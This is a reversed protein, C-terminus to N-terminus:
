KIEITKGQLVDQELVKVKVIKDKIKIVYEGALVDSEEQKGTSYPVMIEFVGNDATTENEYIFKRDQNTTIELSLSIKTGSPAYGKIKAGKVYEFIKITKIDKLLAGNPFITSTTESEYLLRFRELASINLNIKKNNLKKELISKSGDLIHLRAIMSNDYKTPLNEPEDIYGTMDKQVLKVMVNFIGSELLAFKNDSIIYKVKLQDLYSTAKNENTEIFFLSEGLEIVKGNVKKGIGLQFPNATVPRQSYYEIAHGNEWHSLVGYSKEPYVYSNLKGTKKDIGPEKYLAFFDMGPDPTKEKLWKLAKQWDTSLVSPDKMTNIVASVINPLSYPFDQGANFPFPYIIFFVLNFLMVVSGVLFYIKYYSEKKELRSSIDLSKFGFEFGKVIFFSSLLVVNVSLYIDFRVQGFFSFFGTILLTIITWIILLLYEPKKEKLFQYIIIFFGLLYMFFLAFFRDIAGQFKLPNMESVFNRFDNLSSGNNNVGNALVIIKEFIGSFGFKLVIVSVVFIIIIIPFIVWKKFSKKEIIFSVVWLLAFAFFSLTFCLLHNINYTGFTINPHGFFPAIMLLPVLFITFGAILIWKCPKNSLFEILYYTVLFVFIIFLFLIAGVWTLFYLGLSFGTLFVFLWFKINKISNGNKAFLLAYVLFMMTLSSLLVEAVHHDNVGLLSRYLVTPFISVLFASLLSIKTNNWFAKAIFYIVIPTLSGLFVPYFPAIKNILEVTPNGFSILWIFIALIFDYMPAIKDYAGYPFNVYPDFYIFKPFHGGLLINELIRMHYMADDIYKVGGSTFISKYCFFTRIFFSFIFIAILSISNIVQKKFLIKFFSGLIEKVKM